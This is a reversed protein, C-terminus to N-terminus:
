YSVKTFLSLLYKNREENTQYRRLIKGNEDFWQNSSFRYCHLVISLIKKYNMNNLKAKM